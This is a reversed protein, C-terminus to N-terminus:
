SQTFLHIFYNTKLKINLTKQIGPDPDLDTNRTRIWAPGSYPDLVSGSGCRQDWYPDPDLDLHESFVSVNIYKGFGFVLSCHM